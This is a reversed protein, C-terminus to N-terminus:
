NQDHPSKQHKSNKPQSAYKNCNPKQSKAQFKQHKLKKVKRQDHSKAENVKWLNVEHNKPRLM